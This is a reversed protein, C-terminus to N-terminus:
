IPRPTKYVSEGRILESVSPAGSEGVESNPAVVM